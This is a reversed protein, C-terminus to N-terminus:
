GETWTKREEIVNLAAITFAAAFSLFGGATGKHYKRAAEKWAIREAYTAKVTVTHVSGTPYVPKSDWFSM